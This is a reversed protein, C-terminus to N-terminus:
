APLDSYPLVDQPEEVKVQQRRRGLARAGRDLRRSRARRGEGEELEQGAQRLQEAQESPLEYAQGDVEVYAKRGTSVITVTGRESGRTQTYAIRAVPLQGAGELSFPGRLEFGVTEADECKPTVVLRMSLSGSEIEELREDTEALVDEADDGDGGCASLFFAAVVLTALLRM